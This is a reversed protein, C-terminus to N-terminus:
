GKESFYLNENIKADIKTDNQSGKPTLKWYKKPMSKQMGKQIGKKRNKTSFPRWIAWGRLVQATSKGALPRELFADAVCGRNKMSEADIKPAMKPGNAGKQNGKARRQSGNAGKQSGTPERQCGKRLLAEKQHLTREIKFQGLSEFTM